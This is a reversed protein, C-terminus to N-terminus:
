AAPADGSGGQRLRRVYDAIAEDPVRRAGDIKVSELEGRAILEWTKSAGLGLMAAAERVKFLLPRGTDAPATM